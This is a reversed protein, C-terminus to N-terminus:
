KKLLKIKESLKNDVEEVTFGQVYFTQGCISGYAILKNGVKKHEVRFDMFQFSTVLSSSILSM